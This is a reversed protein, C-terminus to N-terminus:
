LIVFIVFSLISSVGMLFSPLINQYFTRYAFVSIILDSTNLSWFATEDRKSQVFYLCLFSCILVELTDSVNQGFGRLNILESLILLELFIGLM